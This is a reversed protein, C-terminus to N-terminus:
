LHEALARVSPYDYTITAALRQGSVTGIRNRLEVAMLSDLGLSAFPEDVDVRDASGFRLVSAALQRVERHVLTRRRGPPTTALRATLPSQAPVGAGELAGAQAMRGPSAPAAAAGTAAMLGAAATSTIETAPRLDELLSI